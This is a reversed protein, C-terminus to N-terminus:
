CTVHLANCSWHHLHLLVTVMEADLRNKSHQMHLILTM